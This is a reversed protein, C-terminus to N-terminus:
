NDRAFEQLLWDRFLVVPPYSVRDDPCALYDGRRENLLPDFLPV